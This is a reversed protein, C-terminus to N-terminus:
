YTNSSSVKDSTMRYLSVIEGDKFEEGVELIGYVAIPNHNFKIKKGETMKVYVWQNISSPAGYFCMDYKGNLAFESVNGDKDVNVPMMFGTLVVKQGNLEKIKDPIRNEALRKKDIKENPLPTYYDYNSLAAISLKQYEVGKEMKKEPAKFFGLFVAFIGIIVAFFGVTKIIAVLSSSEKKNPMSVEFNSIKM